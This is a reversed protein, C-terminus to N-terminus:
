SFFDKLDFGNAYYYTQRNRDYDIEAGLKRLLKFNRYVTSRHIDLYSALTDADGTAKRRLFLNLRQLQTLFETTM